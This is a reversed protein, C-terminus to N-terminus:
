QSTFEPQGREKIYVPLFEEKDLKKDKYTIRIAVGKKTPESWMQDFIFNGLSYYVPRSVGDPGEMYESNQVWHPHSGVIVDAGEAIMQKAWVRQYEQPMATYEVGWHLAVFLIDVQKDSERILQLETNSLKDTTLDFGLFGFRTERRQLIALKGLGTTQIAKSNLIQVTEDIGKQGYNRTHNNALTVIDIGAYVLGDTMEPNACFKFGDTHPPCNTIIPNELNVFTIDSKQMELGVNKFPYTFDKQERTTIEVTRGLMVDGTLFITVRTDEDQIFQNNETAYPLEVSQKPAFFTRQIFFYLTVAAVIITLAIFLKANNKFV